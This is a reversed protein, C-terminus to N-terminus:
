IKAACSPWPTCFPKINVYAKTMMAASIERSSNGAAGRLSAQAPDPISPQVDLVERIMMPFSLADMALTVLPARIRSACFVNGKDKAYFGGMFKEVM